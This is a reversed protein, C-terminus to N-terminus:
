GRGGLGLLLRPCMEPEAAGVVVVAVERLGRDLEFLRISDRLAGRQQVVDVERVAIRVVRAVGRLCEALVERELLVDFVAALELRAQGREVLREFVIWRRRDSCRRHHHVLLGDAAERDVAPDVEGEDMVPRPAEGVKRDPQVERLNELDEPIPRRWAPLDDFSNVILTTLTFLKTPGETTEVSFCPTAIRDLSFTYELRM